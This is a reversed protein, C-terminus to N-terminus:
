CFMYNINALFFLIKKGPISSFTTEDEHCGGTQTYFDQLGVNMSVAGAISPMSMGLAIARDREERLLRKEFEKQDETTKQAGGGEGIPGGGPEKKETEVQAEKQTSTSVKERFCFSPLTPRKSTKLIDRLRRVHLRSQRVDYNDLVMRLVSFKQVEEPASFLPAYDNLLFSERRQRHKKSKSKSKTTGNTGNTTGNTGNTGNMDNDVAARAAAKAAKRTEPPQPGGKILELHYCTVHSIISRENLLSKIELVTNQLHISELRLRSGTHTEVIIPFLDDDTAPELPTAPQAVNSSPAAELIKEIKPENKQEDHKTDM